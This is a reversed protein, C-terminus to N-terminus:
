GSGRARQEARLRAQREALADQEANRLLAALIRQHTRIYRRTVMDLPERMEKAEAHVARWIRLRWRSISWRM